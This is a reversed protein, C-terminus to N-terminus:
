YGAPLYFPTATAVGTQVGGPQQLDVVTSGRVHQRVFLTANNADAVEMLATPTQVMCHGNAIAAFV